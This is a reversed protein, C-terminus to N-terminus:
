LQFSNFFMVVVDKKNKNKYKQKAKKRRFVNMLQGSCTNLSLCPSDVLPLCTHLAQILSVCLQMTVITYKKVFNKKKKEKLNLTSINFYFKTPSDESISIHGKLWPLALLDKSIMTMM